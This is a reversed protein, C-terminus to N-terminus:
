VVERTEIYYGTKIRTETRAIKEGIVREVEAHCGYGQKMQELMIEVDAIEEIINFKYGTELADALEIMEECTKEIQAAAGFHNFIASCQAQQEPTM